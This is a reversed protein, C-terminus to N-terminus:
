NNFYPIKVTGGGNVNVQLYGLPTAPLASAGGAAGVTSATGGHIIHVQGGGSAGITILGAQTVKFLPTSFTTGDTATSPTIEFSNSTSYGAAIHWNYLGSSAPNIFRIEGSSAGSRCTLSWHDRSFEAVSGTYTDGDTATSPTIEFVSSSNFSNGILWNYKGSAALNKFKIVGGSTGLGGVLSINTVNGPTISVAGNIEHVNTGGVAGITVLGASSLTWYTTDNTGLSLSGNLKNIISSDVTSQLLNLGNSDSFADKIIFPATSNGVFSILTSSFQAIAAGGSAFRMNGSGGRYVGTNTDSSFRLSPTGVSGDALLIEGTSPITSTVSSLSAASAAAATASAAAATASAAAATASTSAASASTSAASASAAANTAYTQANAIETTTPGTDLGTGASNVVLVCDTQSAIDTPLTTTFSSFFGDTLRVARDLRNAQRQVMLTLKDLRTELTDAPFSSNEVLDTTQTLAPSCFIVLTEGSAPASLMTVTGGSNGGAGSVTYHTTLTKTTETGNSAVLIVTLDADATFRHPYSFATTSGDGSFSVRNTTSTIM